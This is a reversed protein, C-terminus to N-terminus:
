VPRRRYAIESVRIRESPAIKPTNDPRDERQSLELSIWLHEMVGGYDGSLRKGLTEFPAHLAQSLAWTSEDVINAHIGVQMTM